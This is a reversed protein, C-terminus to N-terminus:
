APRPRCGRRRSPPAPAAAAARRCAARDARACCAARTGAAPPPPDARRDRPTSAATPTGSRAAARAGPAPPSPRAAGGAARRRRRRPRAERAPSPNASRAANSARPARALARRDLRDGRRQALRRASICRSAARRSSGSRSRASSSRSAARRRSGRRRPPRRCAPPPRRAGAPPAAPPLRDGRGIGIARQQVKAVQEPAARVRQHRQQAVLRLQRAHQPRQEAGAIPQGIQQDAVRRHPVGSTSPRPARTRSAAVLQRRPEAGRQRAVGVVLSSARPPSSRAMRRKWASSVSRMPRCSTAPSGALRRLDRAAQGIQRLDAQPPSRPPAARRQRAREPPRAGPERHEPEAAQARALHAVAGIQIQHEQVAAVALARVPTSWRSHNARAECRNM